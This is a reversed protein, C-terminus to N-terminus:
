RTLLYKHFRVRVDHDPSDEFKSQLSQGEEFLVACFYFLHIVGGGLGQAERYSYSLEEPIAESGVLGGYSHMALMVIMGYQEVQRRVEQEVSNADDILTRTSFSPDDPDGCSPLLAHLVAYARSSIALCVQEYVLPTQFCDQIMVVLFNDRDPSDSSNQVFANESM